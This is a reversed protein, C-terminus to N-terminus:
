AGCLPPVDVDNHLCVPSTISPINYSFPWSNSAQTFATVIIFLGAGSGAPLTCLIQQDGWSTVPCNIGGVTVVGTTTGYNIGTITMTVGGATTTPGSPVVNSIVPNDYRFTVPASALGAVTLVAPNANGQGVPLNCQFQTQSYAPTGLITCSIGNITFVGSSWGPAGGPGFNTGTVTLVVQVGGTM